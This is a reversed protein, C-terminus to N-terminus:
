HFTYVAWMFTTMLSADARRGRRHDALRPHSADTGVEVAAVVRVVVGVFQSRSQPDMRVIPLEIRRQDALFCISKLLIYAHGLVLVDDCFHEAIRGLAGLDLMTPPLGPAIYTRRAVHHRTTM